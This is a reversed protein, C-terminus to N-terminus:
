ECKVLWLDYDPHQLPNNGPESKSMWGSFIKADQSVEIFMVFDEAEFPDTQKCTRVIFDLKEFSAARGVPVKVTQTKGAAKNMIRVVATERNVYADAASTATLGFVIFFSAIVKKMDAYINVTCAMLTLNKFLFTGLHSKKSNKDYLNNTQM